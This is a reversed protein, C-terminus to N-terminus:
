LEHALRVAGLGNDTEAINKFDRGGGTWDVQGPHNTVEQEKRVKVKWSTPPQGNGFSSPIQYVRTM